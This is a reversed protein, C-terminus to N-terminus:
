ALQPLLLLAGLEAGHRLLFRPMPQEGVHVALMARFIQPRAAFVALARRRLLPSRDLLLMLAAMRQPLALIEAHRAEYLELGGAALSEALLLAQRFGMALGEGTIADVSGSADGILAVSGRTVRPLRRTLTLCGREQTTVTAGALKDRLFPISALVQALRVGSTQTMGAVCVEDESVPTVYAQGLSGWHVEVQSSWPAVRFHTRFGFRRSRPKGADLGAWARV